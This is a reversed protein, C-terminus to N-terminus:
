SVRELTLANMTKRYYRSSYVIGAAIAVKAGVLMGLGKLITKQDRNM